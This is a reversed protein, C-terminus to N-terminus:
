YQSFRHVELLSCCSAVSDMFSAVYIVGYGSPVVWLYTEWYLLWSQDFICILVHTHTFFISLQTVTIPFPNSKLWPKLFGGGSWDQSYRANGITYSGLIALKSCNKIVSSVKNMKVGHCLQTIVARNRINVVGRTGSCIEIDM